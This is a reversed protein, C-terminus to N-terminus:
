YERDLLYLTLEKLFRAKEGFSDIEDIANKTLNEAKEKAKEIGYMTVYTTKKNKLDRGSEKGLKESDGIVDLIDDVIQFALGLSKAYRTLKEIDENTGKGIIAGCRVSATILAGTKNNHMYEMLDKDIDKGENEIDVVQGGIMGNIGAARAIEQAAKVFRAENKLALFSLMHEYSLNLLGDGALLAIADGYVKHNTPKGRRFDDNDMSPLDDHILSYTHIMEIAVAFPYLDEENCNFIEGTGMLLIPRLRKGGALLSYRMSSIINQIYESESPIINEIYDNVKNQRYLLEKEFDM